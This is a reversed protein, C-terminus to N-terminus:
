DTKQTLNQRRYFVMILLLLCAVSIAAPFLVTTISYHQLAGIVLLNRVIILVFFTLSETHPFDYAKRFTPGFGLLDVSTLIVVAWLPDQTFFWAPLSSLAAIFFLSDVRTISTDEHKYIALLGIFIAIAGSIGIPWAGIGAGDELQAFFVVFTTTGWIVWSFVHAKIQGTWVSRIYPVFAVFTILVALGSLLQQYLM